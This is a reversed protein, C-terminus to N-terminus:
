RPDLSLSLASLSAAHMQGTQCREGEREFESAQQTTAYDRQKHQHGKKIGSRVCNAHEAPPRIIAPLVIVM